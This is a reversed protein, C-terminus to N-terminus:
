ASVSARYSRKRPQAAEGTLPPLIYRLAWQNKECTVKGGLQRTNARVIKKKLARNIEESSLFEAERILLGAGQVLSGGDSFTM